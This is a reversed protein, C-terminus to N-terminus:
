ADREKWELRVADKKWFRVKQLGLNRWAPALEGQWGWFCGQLRAPVWLLFPGGPEYETVAKLLALGMIRSGLAPHRPGALIAGDLGTQPAVGMRIVPVNRRAAMLWAGALSAIAQHLPWPRYDGKLWIGALPSGALVLCPYFRLCVAGLELAMRTDELFDQSSGGPLGPMLQVGPGLGAARLLACAARAQLATYGRGSVALAADNFSQIGLEVLHCGSNVLGALRECSLSDPRTSCRYGTILGAQRMRSAFELCKRWLSEPLATFTGGYFALEPPPLGNQKRDWLGEYCEALIGEAQSEREPAVCGTQVEQACFICRKPCGLYPLFIPWIKRTRKAPWAFELPESEKQAM